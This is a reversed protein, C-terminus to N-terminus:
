ATAAPFMDALAAEGRIDSDRLEVMLRPLDHFQTHIKDLIDAQRQLRNQWFQGQQNAGLVSNIILGACPLHAARLQAVARGTELLPLMEPILVLVIGTIDPNHLLTRAEAFLHRRRHLTEMAKGLRDEAASQRTGGTHGLAGAADQLKAQRRQQALLGDTWAQMMEPLMLLRLTHGTPATDFIIHQYGKARADILHRCVAELTAAEEAGPSHRALHLFDRIKPMMDPNAYAAITQEIEKFHTRVIDNADLEIADLNPAVSRPQNALAVDLVDGLSHAPDTSLILTRRGQRAFRVALAASSTTKGVGGKGGVFLIHKRALADLLSNSTDMLLM